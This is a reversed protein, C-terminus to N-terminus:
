DIKIPNYEDFKYDTLRNVKRNAEREISDFTSLYRNVESDCEDLIRKFYELENNLVNQFTGAASVSYYGLGSDFADRLKNIGDNIRWKASSLQSSLDGKRYPDYNIVNGSRSYEDAVYQYVDRRSTLENYLRSAQNKEYSIGQSFQRTRKDNWFTTAMDIERFLSSRINDYESLDNNVKRLQERMQEVNVRM